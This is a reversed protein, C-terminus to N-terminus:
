AAAVGVLAAERRRLQWSVVFLSLGGIMALAGGAGSLARGLAEQGGGFVQEALLAILTPPAPNVGHWGGLCFSRRFRGVTRENVHM